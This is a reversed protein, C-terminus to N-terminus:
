KGDKIYNIIETREKENKVGNFVMKNGPMFKKPDVLYVDLQKEDWVVGSNKNADSYAFGPITGAKRGVIGALSPGVRNKGAEVTHCTACHKKFAKDDALAPVAALGLVFVVPVTWSRAM